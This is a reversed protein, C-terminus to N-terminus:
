ILWEYPHEVPLSPPPPVPTVSLLLLIAFPRFSYILLPKPSGYFIEELQFIFYGLLWALFHLLGTVINSPHQRDYQPIKKKPQEPHENRCVPEENCYTPKELQPVLVCPSLLQPIHSRLEGVLSRIQAEQVPLMSDQGSSCWPLGWVLSNPYKRSPLQSLWSVPFGPLWITMWILEPTM